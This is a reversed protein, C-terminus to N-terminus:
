LHLLVAVISIALAIVSTIIVVAGSAFAWGAVWDFRRDSNEIM